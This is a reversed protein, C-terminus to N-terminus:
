QSRQLDALSLRKAPKPEPAVPPTPPREATQTRPTAKGRTFAEAVLILALELNGRPDDSVRIKTKLDWLTRIAFFLREPELMRALEKRSEYATGTVSLQGGAKLVFLDRITSVVEQQIQAPSGITSLQSDLLAFIHGHDGTALAALLAPGPDSEGALRQYGELSTVDARAAMDLSQIATRVNGKSLQALHALLRVDIELGEQAAVYKLRDLIASATVSRFSFELLRSQVDDPIKHPETTLLVFITGPPPEELTKRLVEFGQRTMSQAEDLIVIRYSGGTSYKVIEMLQRVESVGGNSASDIEIVDTAGLQKALIRAVSTKGVGSPGSIMLGQPVSEQKVMQDLVVAHHRQGIIDAFTQPRYKLALPESM